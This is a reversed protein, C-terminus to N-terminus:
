LVRIGIRGVLVGLCSVIILVLGVLRVKVM